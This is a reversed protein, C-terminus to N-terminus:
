GCAQIHGGHVEGEGGGREGEGEGEVDMLFWLAASPHTKMKQTIIIEFPWPVSSVHRKRHFGM